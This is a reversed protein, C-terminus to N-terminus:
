ARRFPSSGVQLGYECFAVSSYMVEKYNALTDLVKASILRYDPHDKIVKAGPLEDAM